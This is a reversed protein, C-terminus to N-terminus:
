AGPKIAMDIVVLLLIGTEIANVTMTQKFNALFRPGDVGEEAIAADRIKGSRSYYFVGILFSTIWAAYALGIWLDSQDYGAKSVLFIGAVLLIISAPAFIRNGVFEAEYTYALMKQRDGSKMALRGIIHAHVGGGVWIVACLIHIALLVTYTSIM